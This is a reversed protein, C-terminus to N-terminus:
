GHQMGNEFNQCNRLSNEVADSLAHETYYATHPSILVNPLQQLRTLATNEVTSARRDSYFTGEEGEVVDLAAGGLHGSELAALLADTELLAGRGTNVAIAGRKMQQIRGHHLLWRTKETLPTHLTVIDSERVLEDLSVYDASTRACVDHALIRCRFAHLRDIVASGIRGTGVVGVTLDRLERGPADNLRYDHTDTRRVVSKMGRLAMLMLLVTYDAVSDPSYAVTEVTIGVSKAYAPDLHNCGISRTSLYRVGVRSLACLAANTIPTKHGVSVCRTGAALEASAESVAATTTVPEVGLRPALRRVLVAEAPDCDYVTIGTASYVRGATTAPQLYTM